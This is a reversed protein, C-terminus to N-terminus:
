EALQGTIEPIKANVPVYVVNRGPSWEGKAFYGSTM